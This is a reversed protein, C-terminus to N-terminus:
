EVEREWKMEPREGRKTGDPSSVMIRKSWRDVGVHSV